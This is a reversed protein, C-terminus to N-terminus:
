VDEEKKPWLMSQGPSQEESRLRDIFRDVWGLEAQLLTTSHDFMAEVHSPLPQQESRRRRVHELQNALADRYRDLAGLVRGRPLLPLNALGLQLLPYRRQPVSLAEVVGAYLTERGAPTISYVKRPRGRESAERRGEILGEKELKGLLYYISSFGIETWERMGREGIVQEIEYGHRPQEAILSLVALESQTLPM